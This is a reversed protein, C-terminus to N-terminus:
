RVIDGSQAKSYEDIPLPPPLFIRSSRRHRRSLAVFDLMTIAEDIPSSPSWLYYPQM